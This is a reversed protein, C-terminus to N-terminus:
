AYRLAALQSFSIGPEIDELKRQTLQYYRLRMEMRVMRNQNTLEYHQRMMFIALSIFYINSYHGYM